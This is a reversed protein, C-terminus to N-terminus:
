SMKKGRKREYLSNGNVHILIHYPRRPFFTFISFRLELKCSLYPNTHIKQYRPMGEEQSYKALVNYPFQINLTISLNIGAQVFSYESFMNKRNFTDM